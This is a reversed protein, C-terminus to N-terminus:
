WGVSQLWVVQHSYGQILMTGKACLDIDHDALPVAQFQPILLEM